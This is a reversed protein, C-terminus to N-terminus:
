DGEEGGCPPATAGHRDFALWSVTAGEAGFLLYLDRVGRADTLAARVQTWQYPGGTDPVALTAAVRGTLPDDFRLTL